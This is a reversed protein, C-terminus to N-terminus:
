FYSANARVGPYIENVFERVEKSFPLNLPFNPYQATYDNHAQAFPIWANEVARRHARYQRDARNIASQLRSHSYKFWVFSLAIFIYEGGFVILADTVGALAIMGLSTVLNYAAFWDPRALMAGIIMTPTVLVMVFGALNWQWVNSGEEERATKRGLAICLEFILLAVPVLLTSLGIQWANEDAFPISALYHVPANILFYNICIVAIAGLVFISHKLTERPGSNAFISSHKELKNISPEKITRRAKAGIAQEAHLTIVSHGNQLQALHQLRKATAISEEQSQRHEAQRKAFREDEPLDYDNLPPFNPM